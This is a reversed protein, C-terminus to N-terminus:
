ASSVCYSSISAFIQLVRVFAALDFMYHSERNSSIFHQENSEDLTVFTERLESGVEYSDQRICPGIASTINGRIAGLGVMARVTAGALMALVALVSIYIRM